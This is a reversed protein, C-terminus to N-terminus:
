DASPEQAAVLKEKISKVVNIAADMGAYATDVKSAGLGLADKVASLAGNDSRMTTAISWYAANDAAKTVREGTSIRSQTTSLNKNINSLTQLATMASANTLLSSMM